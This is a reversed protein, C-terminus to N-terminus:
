LGFKGLSRLANQRVAGEKDKAAKLLGPVAARADRGLAGLAGAAFSRVDANQDQLSTILMNLESKAPPGIKNLAELALRRTLPDTETGVLKLLPAVAMKAEPGVGGLAAASNGRVKSDASELNRVLGPLGAANGAVVMRN